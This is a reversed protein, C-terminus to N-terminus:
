IVNETVFTLFGAIVPNISRRGKKIFVMQFEVFLHPNITEKSLQM